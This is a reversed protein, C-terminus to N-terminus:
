VGDNAAKARMQDAKDQASMTDYCNGRVKRSSNLIGHEETGQRLTEIDIHILSGRERDAIM